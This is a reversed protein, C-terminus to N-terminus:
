QPRRFFNKLTDAAADRPNEATPNWRGKNWVGPVEKKKQQKKKEEKLEREEPDESQMEAHTPDLTRTDTDTLWSDLDLDDHVSAEATRAVAEEVSAVKPKKDGGIPVTLRIEFELDGVEVFGYLGSQSVEKAHLEYVKGRNLFVVRYISQKKPM